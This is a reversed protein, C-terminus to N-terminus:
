GAILVHCLQNVIVDREDVGHVVCGHIVVTDDFLKAYRGCEDNIQQRQHAVLDVVNRTYRSHSFFGGGRQQPM